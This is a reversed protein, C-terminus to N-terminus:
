QVTLPAGERSEIISHKNTQVVRLSVASDRDM